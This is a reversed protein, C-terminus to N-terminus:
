HGYGEPRFYLVGPGRVFVYMCGGFPMSLTRQVAETYISAQLLYDHEQMATKMSAEGYEPLLNTKWDVFYVKEEHVFVLDIVGKVFNHKHEFLFETEVLLRDRQVDQLSFGTPLPLQLTNQMMAVVTQTWPALPTTRLEQEVLTELPTNHLFFREFIRHILIGTEPGPPLTEPMYLPKVNSPTPHSLSSFSLIYSPQFPLPPPLPSLVPVLIESSSSLTLPSSTITEISLDTEQSLTTLTHQWQGDPALFKCFREMPSLADEKSQTPIPLYLRRKARTLTVYLQRLQEAEADADEAASRASVGLAFVIDFELGKSKHMTLIQVGDADVDQMRCPAVDPDMHHVRELFRFLGEFSFGHAQEWSFLLEFTQRLDSYFSIGATAAAEEVTKNGLKTHLLAHLTAALGEEDLTKRLASFPSSDLELLEIAELGGLPGALVTKALKGNKPDHLAAFVEEVCQFACTESLLERSKSVVPIGAQQLVSEIKAAQYRDKVLVAFSSLTETHTRLEAIEQVTRFFLDEENEFLWCHVAKKEDPFETQLSLGAKVPLYSITEGLKPLQFWDRDLLRNLAGILQKSSRYNTDLCFHGESAIMQKAAMYTYVDANRFRYISQKPDGILYFAEASGLFLTQFIDWQVPDTDQFEDILVARYKKQIARCFDPDQTAKQMDTLLKDPDEIGEAELVRDYFPEWATLVAQFIENPDLSSEILPLLHHRGWAFFPPSTPPAKVKRNEPSFFRFVSGKERLLVNWDGTQLAEVQAVFDGKMAKYNGRHQAFEDLLHERTPGGNLVQLFEHLREEATQVQKTISRKQLRFALEEVSGAWHLLVRLQEASIIKPGLHLEFFSRLAHEIKLPSGTKMVPNQERLQASCFGHITFIQARDFSFLADQLQSAELNKRIRAKLERAAARTFTVVLIEDISFGHERILRAVIHEIAFTKGTGASAELFRHGLLPATLCDFTQM